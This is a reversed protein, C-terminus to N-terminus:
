LSIKIKEIRRKTVSIIKFKLNKYLIEKDRRPLQGELELIIGALSDAQGSGENFVESDIDVIRAM